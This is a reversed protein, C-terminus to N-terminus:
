QCGKSAHRIISAIYLTRMPLLSDCFLPLHVHCRCPSDSVRRRPQQADQHRQQRCTLGQGLFRAGMRVHVAIEACLVLAVIGGYAAAPVAIGAIYILVPVAREAIHDESLQHLGADLHRVSTAVAAPFRADSAASGAFGARMVPHALVLLNVDIGDLDDGVVAPHVGIRGVDQGVMIARIAPDHLVTAHHFLAGPERLLM